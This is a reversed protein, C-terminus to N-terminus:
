FFEIRKSRLAQFTRSPLRKGLIKELMEGLDVCKELDVGTRIGSNELFYVLDETALNGSAGPAYPCGGLGGISSDITTIGLDLAVHTNAIAMGYTDHFHVALQEKSFNGGLAQLVEKVKQPTAVGITDGLSVEYVGIKLLEEVIQSVSILSVKGEYPCGYCTSLYARVKWGQRVAVPVWEMLETLSESISRNVNKRNHTESASLFIAIESLAFVQARLFGKYNPVLARYSADEFSISQLFAEADALAPIWKPHVFSTLEIEELGAARLGRLMMQKQETSLIVAENQLGDRLGVEVIRVKM